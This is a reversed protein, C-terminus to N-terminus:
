PCKGHRCHLPDDQTRTGESAQRRKCSSGHLLHTGIIDLPYIICVSWPSCAVLGRLALFVAFEVQIM